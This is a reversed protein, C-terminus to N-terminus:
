FESADDDDAAPSGEADQEEDNAQQKASSQASSAKRREAAAKAAAKAEDDSVVHADDGVEESIDGFGDSSAEVLKGIQVAVLRAMVGPKDSNQSPDLKINVIVTSGSGVRTDPDMERGKADYLAVDYKSKAIVVLAAPNNDDAALERYGRNFKANKLQGKTFNEEAFEDFVAKVEAAKTSNVPYRVTISRNGFRDPRDLFVYSAVTLPLKTYKGKSAM